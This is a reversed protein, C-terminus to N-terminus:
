AATGTAHAYFAMGRLVIWTGLLGAPIALLLVLLLGRQVFPLDFADFVPRRSVLLSHTETEDVGSLACQRAGMLLPTRRRAVLASSAPASPAERSALRSRMGPRTTTSPMPMAM